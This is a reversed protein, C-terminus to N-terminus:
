SVSALEEVCHLSAHASILLREIKEPSFGLSSVAREDVRLAYADWGPSSSLQHALCDAVHVVASLRPRPTLVPRHHHAVAEVIIEPLRWSKLLSAGVEAHDTELIAREAEVRSHQQSEVLSRIATVSDPTLFQNLVLKGIDHLLGATYAVSPEIELSSGEAMMVESAVAATLSHRWLEQEDILYAPLARALSKGVGLALIIRFIQQYGLYFVAQEVSAVPEALGFAASNCAALVKACLAGDSKVVRVVQENEVDTQHLLDMLKIIVPSPTPLDTIQAILTEANM